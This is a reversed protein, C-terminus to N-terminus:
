NIECKISVLIRLKYHQTYRGVIEITTVHLVHCSHYHQQQRKINNLYAGQGYFKIRLTYFYFYHSSNCHFKQNGSYLLFFTLFLHPSLQTLSLGLQTKQEISDGFGLGWNTIKIGIGLGLNSDVFGFGLGKYCDNYFGIRM